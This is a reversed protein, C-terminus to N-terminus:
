WSDFITYDLKATPWLSEEEDDGDATVPEPPSDLSLTVSPVQRNEVLACLLPGQREENM